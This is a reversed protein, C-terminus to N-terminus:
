FAPGIIGRYPRAPGDRDGLELVRFSSPGATGLCPVATGLSKLGIYCQESVELITRCHEYMLVTDENHPVSGRVTDFTSSCHRVCHWATCCFLHRRPKACQRQSLSGTGREHCARDWLGMRHSRRRRGSWAASQYRERPVSRRFLYIKM